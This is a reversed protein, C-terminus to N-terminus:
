EIVQATIGAAGTAVSGGLACIALEKEKGGAIAKAYEKKGRVWHPVMVEQLYVTDAGSKQLLQKAWEVAKEAEPSGSLRGGIKNALYNLNSYAQANTLAENFFKRIFISDNARATFCGISLVFLFSLTMKMFSDNKLLDYGKIEREPPLNKFRILM